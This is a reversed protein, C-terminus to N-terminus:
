MWEPCVSERPSLSFPVVAVSELLSSNAAGAVIKGYLHGALHRPDQLLRTGCSDSLTELSICSGHVRSPGRM